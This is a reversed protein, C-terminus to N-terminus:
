CDLRICAGSRFRRGQKAGCQDLLETALLEDRRAWEEVMRSGSANNGAELVGQQWLSIM